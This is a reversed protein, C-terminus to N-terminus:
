AARKIIDYKTEGNPLLEIDYIDFLNLREIITEEFKDDIIKMDWLYSVGGREFSLAAASGNRLVPAPLLEKSWQETGARAIYIAFIDAGSRNIVNVATCEESAPTVVAANAAYTLTLFLLMAPLVRM